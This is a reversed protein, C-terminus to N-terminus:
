LKKLQNNRNVVTKMWNLTNEIGMDRVVTNCHHHGWALNYIQHNYEGTRVEQIHFLNLSTVTLDPVNRGQAQQIRSIFDSAQLLELCLPCVAKGQHNIARIEQLKDLNALGKHQCEEELLNKAIEPNLCNFSHCLEIIGETRWVLFALQLKTAEIEESSAYEYVRIGAGKGGTKDNIFGHWIQSDQSRTTDPIRAVYQGCLPSKRSKAFNWKYQNPNYKNWEDRTQYFVLLNDGLKLNKPLNAVPKPPKESFYDEPSILVIYGNEFGNKPVILSNNWCDFPIIVTSNRSVRNQYIEDNEAGRTQSTKAIKTKIPKPLSSSYRVKKM